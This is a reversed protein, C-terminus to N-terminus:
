KIFGTRGTFVPRGAEPQGTNELRNEIFFATDGTRTTVDRGPLGPVQNEEMARVITPTVMVVLEREQVSHEKSTFLSGIYPIDGLFPIKNITQYYDEQLLGAMAFTQGSKLQLTTTAKRTTLGPVTAGGSSVQVSYDLTSVEPNVELTITDRDLIYPTFALMVGYDRYEITVNGSDGQVPVPYEGGAQFEARQGNMTVLTPTALSKALGQSKLLSIISMWNHGTANLAIQFATGFPASITSVADTEGTGSGSLTASTESAGKFIGVGLQDSMRSFSIGMQRLGSKSIEAIVVKLQVQQSGTLRIMNVCRIGFSGAVSLIHNLTEQSDVEGKLLLSPDDPDTRAELVVLNVGPALEAIRDRIAALIGPAITTYIHVDYTKVRDEGFWLILSTSGAHKTRAVVLISSPTLVSVDAIEPDGVSARTIPESTRLLHSHRTELIITEGARARAPGLTLLIGIMLWFIGLRTQAPKDEYPDNMM